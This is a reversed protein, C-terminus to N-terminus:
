AIGRVGLALWLLLAGGLLLTWGLVRWARGDRAPAGM